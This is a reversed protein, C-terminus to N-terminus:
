KALMLKVNVVQGAFRVVAMYNGSSLQNLDMSLNNVGHFINSKSSHVQTGNMDFISVDAAGELTSNIVLHATSSAPNPIFRSWSIGGEAAKGAEEDKIIASAIHSRENKGDFDVQNLRYYYTVNPKVDTDQFKYVIKKNTSGNGDVWGITEFIEGDTSREVEFGKNDIETATVWDVNIAEKAPNADMSVLKVPLANGGGIHNALAFDSFSNFASPNSTSTITGTESTTGVGGIDIWSNPTATTNKVIRLDDADSVADGEFYYFKITQNGSLNASSAVMTSTLLRNIRWYNIDSVVAITAPLTKALAKASEHIMESAYTYATTANHAVTLEFPRYNGNKGIPFNLTRTASAAMQYNLPGNVFSSSSGITTTAANGLTLLNTATTTIIGNTLTLTGSAPINVPVNLVLAGGPASNMKLKTIVPTYSSNGSITQVTDGDMVMIGSSGGSGATIIGNGAFIINHSFTTATNNAPDLVGAGTRTFTVQSNYDDAVTNALRLANASSNIIETTDNFINGGNSINDTAGTKEIITHHSFTNGNIILQPARLTVPAQFSSNSVNLMASTGVLLYAHLNRGLQTIKSIQLTGASFGAAGITILRSANLTTTGASNGFAVGSGATCTVEINQNYIGAGTTSMRIVSAAGTAANNLYVKGNFTFTGTGNQFRVFNAATGGNNVIVVGDFIASGSNFEGFRVGANTGSASSINVIVSDAFYSTRATHAHVLSIYGAGSNNVILKGAFTDANANGTFLGAAGSNTISAFGKFNNGGAGTNDTAGTKQLIASDNFISGSLTLQPATFTVKGGWNSGPGSTINATGTLALVQATTGSQTFRPLLIGGGSFGSAGISITKGAALRTSATAAPSFSVSGTSTNNLIVNGNLAVAANTGEGFLVGGASSIRITLDGNFVTNGLYGMRTTGTSTNTISVDGNYTSGSVYEMAIESASANQFLVKNNFTNNGNVRWTGTSGAGSTKSLTVYSNFINNGLGASAATGTKEIYATDQFTVGSLTIGPAIFTAKGNFTSAPGITLNTTTGSLTIAQSTSGLQTFRPLLVSGGSVGAIGPAITKGSALTASSSAGACFSLTGTATNNLAINGNFAISTSASEGFYIGGTSTNSIVVDSNFTNTGTYALRTAGTTSNTVTVIGAYTSGTTYDFAFENTAQNTIFLKNNFTNGGNNRIYASGSPKLFSTVGNFTCGGAMVNATASTKQFYASDGFTSASLYLNPVTFSVKGNFISSNAITLTSSGTLTLSHPTSGTQTFRNINLTGASFGASGLTLAKGSALTVTAGTLEGFAIGTGATSSVVINNNFVNTGAYALRVSGTGENSASVEGNFTSGTLLEFLIDGAAQNIFHTKGNHTNGGNTRFVGSTSTSAKRFISVGAFSNGGLGTNGSTGTKTLETTDNNFDCGSLMFNAASFNVRANFVASPGFTITSSNGTLSLIQPTTGLQTFRQLRLNGNNFGITGNLIKKGSALTASATPLECFLIDGTGDSNVYIDGNFVTNGSYALRIDGATNGSLYIILDGNFTAPKLYDFLMYDTGDNIITTTSGNFVVNSDLRIRGAANIRIQTIGNFTVNGNANNDTTGNKIINTTGNFTGSNFIVNATSSNFTCNAAFTCGNFTLNTGTAQVTGNSVTSTGTFSSNGAIALTYTGLNISGSSITFNNVSTNGALLPPNSSTVITVNDTAGPVGAPTWNAATGWDTSAAAVKWTYSTQAFSCVSQVLFLLALIFPLRLQGKNTSFQM